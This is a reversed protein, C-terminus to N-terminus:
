TSIHLLHLNVQQLYERLTGGRGERKRQAWMAFPTLGTIKGYRDGVRIDGVDVTILKFGRRLLYSGRTNPFKNV